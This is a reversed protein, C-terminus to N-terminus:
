VRGKMLKSKRRAALACVLDGVSRRGVPGRYFATRQTTLNRCLHRDARAGADRRSQRFISLLHVLLREHHFVCGGNSNGRGSVAIYPLYGASVWIDCYDRRSRRGIDTPYASFDSLDLPRVDCSSGGCRRLSWYGAAACLRRLPTVLATGGVM